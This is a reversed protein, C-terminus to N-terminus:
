ENQNYPERTLDPTPRRIQSKAFEHSTMDFLGFIDQSQLQILKKDPQVLRLQDGAGFGLCLECIKM